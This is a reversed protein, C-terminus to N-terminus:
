LIRSSKHHRVEALSGYLKEGEVSQLKTFVSLGFSFRICVGKTM